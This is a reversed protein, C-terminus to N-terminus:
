LALLSRARQDVGNRLGCNGQVQSVTALQDRVLAIPPPSSRRVSVDLRHRPALGRKGEAEDRLAALHPARHIGYRGYAARWPQALFPANALGAVSGPVQWFSREIKILLEKEEGDILADECLSMTSLLSLHFLLSQEYEEM